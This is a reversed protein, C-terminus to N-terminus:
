RWCKLVGERGFAFLFQETQSRRKARGFFSRLLNAISKSPSLWSQRAPRLGPGILSAAQQDGVPHVVSPRAERCLPPVDQFVALQLSESGAGSGRGEAQLLRGPRRRGHNDSAKAITAAPSRALRAPRVRSRRIPGPRTRTSRRASAAWASTVPSALAPASSASETM